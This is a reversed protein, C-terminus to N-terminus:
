EIGGWEVTSSDVVLIVWSFPSRRLPFVFLSFISVRSRPSTESETM